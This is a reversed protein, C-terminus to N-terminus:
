VFLMDVLVGGRWYQISFNYGAHLGVKDYSGSLIQEGNPSLRVCNVTM